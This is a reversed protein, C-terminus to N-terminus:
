NEKGPFALIPSFHMQLKSQLYVYFLQKFIICCCYKVFFSHEAAVVVIVADVVVADDSGLRFVLKNGM